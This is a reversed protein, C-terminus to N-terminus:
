HLTIRTSEAVDSTCIMYNYSNTYLSRIRLHDRVHKIASVIEDWSLGKIMGMGAVFLITNLTAGIVQDLAFKLAINKVNSTKTVANDAVVDQAGKNDDLKKEKYANHGAPHTKEPDM